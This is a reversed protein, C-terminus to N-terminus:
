KTWLPSRSKNKKIPTAADVRAYIVKNDARDSYVEIYAPFPDNEKHSLKDTGPIHVVSHHIKLEKADIHQRICNKALGAEVFVAGCIHCSFIELKKPKPDM